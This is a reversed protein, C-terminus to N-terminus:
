EVVIGSYIVLIISLSSFLNRLKGRDILCTNIGYQDYRGLHTHGIQENVQSQNHHLLLFMCIYINRSPMNCRTMLLISACVKWEAVQRDLEKLEGELQQIRTEMNEKGCEAQLAKRLGFAVSSEYLTQYAAITMRLEDRVRLLLLGREACNVTVQRILEDFCQAYLEERIPCIGTERAQRRQLEQDLKEQLNVVDLRTAPTSSVHQVWQQGDEVWQRPPLIADLIDETQQTALSKPEGSAKNGKRKPSSASKTLVVAANSYKLLSPWPELGGAKSTM